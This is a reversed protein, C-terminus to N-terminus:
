PSVLIRRTAGDPGATVRLFYIGDALGAVPIGTEHRGAALVRSAVRRVMAGRVDFLVASVRREVPLTFAVRTERGAPNPRPAELRFALDRTAVPAAVTEMVRTTA